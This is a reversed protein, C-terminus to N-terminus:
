TSMSCSGLWRLSPKIRANLLLMKSLCTHLPFNISLALPIMFSRLILIKFKTDNDSHIERTAHKLFENAVSFDFGLMLFFDDRTEMFVGLIALSTVLLWLCMGSGVLRTCGLQV